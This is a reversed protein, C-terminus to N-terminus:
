HPIFSEIQCNHVRQFILNISFEHFIFDMSPPSVTLDQREPHPASWAASGAGLGAARDGLLHHPDGTGLPLSGAQPYRSWRQSISPSDWCPSSDCQQRTGAWVRCRPQKRRPSCITPRQLTTSLNTKLKHKPKKELFFAFFFTGKRKHEDTVSTVKVQEELKTGPWTSM